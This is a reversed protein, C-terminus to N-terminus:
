IRRRARSVVGRGERRGRRAAMLVIWAQYVNCVVGENIVTKKAYVQYGKFCPWPPVPANRGEAQHTPGERAMLDVSGPWLNVFWM